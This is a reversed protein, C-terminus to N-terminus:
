HAAMDLGHVAVAAPVHAANSWTAPRRRSSHSSPWAPWVPGSPQSTGSAACAAPGYPQLGRALDQGLDPIQNKKEKSKFLIGLFHIPSRFIM